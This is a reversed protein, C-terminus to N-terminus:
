APEKSPLLWVGLLAREAPSPADDATLDLSPQRHADAWAALRGRAGSDGRLCAEHVPCFRCRGPEEDKDPNVLRPFFAGRDWAELATRVASRFAEVFPVANGWITHERLDDPLDPRLFLYRGVGDPRFPSPDGAAVAYAVAQLRRGAEVDRLLHDLRTQPRKAASVPRGTKYDTLLFAPNRGGPVRDAGPARVHLVRASGVAAVGVVRGRVVAAVV